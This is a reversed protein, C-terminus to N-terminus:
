IGRRESGGSVAPMDNQAAHPIEVDAFARVRTPFVRLKGAGIPCSLAVHIVIGSRTLAVDSGNPAVRLAARRADEEYGGQLLSPTSLLTRAGAAAADQCSVRTGVASGLGLLLVALLAVVPLVM